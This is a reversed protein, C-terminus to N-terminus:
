LEWHYTEPALISISGLKFGAWNYIIKRHEGKKKFVWWGAEWKIWAVLAGSLTIIDASISRTLEIALKETTKLFVALSAKFPFNVQLLNITVEIGFSIFSFKIGLSAKVGGRINPTVQATLKSGGEIGGVPVMCVALSHGGSTSHIWGQCSPNSAVNREAHGPWDGANGLVPYYATSPAGPPQQIWTFKAGNESLVYNWHFWGGGAVACATGVDASVTAFALFGKHKDQCVKAWHAATRNVGGPDTEKIMCYKGDTTKHTVGACPDAVPAVSSKEVFTAFRNMGAAVFVKIGVDLGGCPVDMAQAPVLTKEFTLETKKTPDKGLMLDLTIKADPFAKYTYPIIDFFFIRGLVEYYDVTTGAPQGPLSPLFSDYHDWVTARTHALTVNIGFIQAVAKAGAEYWGGRGTMSNGDEGFHVTGTSRNAGMTLWAAVDLAANKVGWHKKWVKERTWSSTVEFPEEEGGDGGQGNAPGPAPAEGFPSFHKRLIVLPFRTCNNLAPDQEGEIVPEEFSPVVCVRLEFENIPGWEGEHLLDDLDPDLYLAATMAFSENGEHEHFPLSDHHTQADDEDTVQAKMGHWGLVADDLDAVGVGGPMPRLDFELHLDGALIKEGEAVGLVRLSVSVDVHPDNPAGAPQADHGDGFDGPPLGDAEQQAALEEPTLEEHHSVHDPIVLVSNSLRAELLQAERGPSELLNLSQPCGDIAAPESPEEEEHAGGHQALASASCEAKDVELIKMIPYWSEGEHDDPNVAEQDAGSWETKHWPDFAFFVQLNEVGILPACDMPIIFERQFRLHDTTTHDDHHNIAFHGILCGNSHDPAQLGVLVESEYDEGVTDFEAAILIPHLLQVDGVTPEVILHKLSFEAVKPLAMGDDGTTGDTGDVGDTSDTADPETSDTQDTADTSTTAGDSVGVCTDDVHETNEGCELATGCGAALLGTVVAM